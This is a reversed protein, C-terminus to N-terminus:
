LEYIRNQEGAPKFKTHRIECRHPPRTSYKEVYHRCCLGEASRVYGCGEIICTVKPAFKLPDGYKRLRKYHANCLAKTRVEYPCGVVSCKMEVIRPKSSGMLPDGYKRWRKYHINCFGKAKSEIYCNKVLCKTRMSLIARIRPNPPRNWVGCNNRFLIWSSVM